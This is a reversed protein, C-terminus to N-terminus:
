KTWTLKFALEGELEDDSHKVKYELGDEPVQVSQGEVVLSGSGIRDALSKLADVVEQRTGYGEEQWKMVWGGEVLNPHRM